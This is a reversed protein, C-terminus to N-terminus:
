PMDAFIKFSHANAQEIWSEIEKVSLNYDHILPQENGALWGGIDELISEADAEALLFLNMTKGSFPNQYNRQSFHLIQADHETIEIQVLDALEAHLLLLNLDIQSQHAIRQRMMPNSLLLLLEFESQIPIGKQNLYLIFKPLRNPIVKKQFLANTDLDHTIRFDMKDAPIRKEFLFVSLCILLLFVAVCLILKQTFTFRMPKSKNTKFFYM